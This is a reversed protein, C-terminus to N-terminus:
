FDFVEFVLSLTQARRAGGALCARSVAARHGALRAEELLGVVCGATSEIVLRVLVLAVEQVELVDCLLLHNSSVQRVVAVLFAVM